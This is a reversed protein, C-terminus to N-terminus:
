SRGRESAAMVVGAEAEDLARGRSGSSCYKLLRSIRSLRSFFCSFYILILLCLELGRASQFLGTYQDTATVSYASLAAALSFSRRLASLSARSGAVGSVLVRDLQRYPRDDGTGADASGACM